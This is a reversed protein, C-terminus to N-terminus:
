LMPDHLLAFRHEDWFRNNRYIAKRSIGEPVFGCKELVRMSAPNFEYVGAFIRNLDLEKFGYEVILRVSRTAINKGWYPEGLWYGLEASYRYVGEQLHLGIVGSFEGRFHIGFVKNKEDQLRQRIFKEAEEPTYPDPFNTRLNDRIKKNDALLAIRSGDAVSLPKMEINTTTLM